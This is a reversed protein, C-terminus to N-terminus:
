EARANNKLLELYYEILENLKKVYNNNFETQFKEFLSEEWFLLSYIKELSSMKRESNGIYSWDETILLDNNEQHQLINFSMSVCSTITIDCTRKVVYGQNILDNVLEKNKWQHMEEYNVDEYSM